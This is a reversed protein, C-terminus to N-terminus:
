SYANTPPPPLPQCSYTSAPTPLPPSAVATQDAPLHHHVVEEGVVTGGELVEHTHMQQPHPSPNVHTHALQPPPPPSAVATQDAPLHHHVVEEGMVVDDELLVHTCTTHSPPDNIPHPPPPLTCSYTSKYKQERDERQTCASEQDSIKKKHQAMTQFLRRQLTLDDFVSVDTLDDEFYQWKLSAYQGRTHTYTNTHMHTHMCTHTHACFLIPSQKPKKSESATHELKPFYCM